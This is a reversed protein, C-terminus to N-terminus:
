SETPNNEYKKTENLKQDVHNEFTELLVRLEQAAGLTQERVLLTMLNEAYTQAELEKATTRESIFRKLLKFGVQSLQSKVEQYERFTLNDM